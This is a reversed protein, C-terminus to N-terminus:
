TAPGNATDQVPYLRAVLEKGAFGSAVVDVHITVPADEFSTQTVTAAGIAIDREPAGASFLVPYVPPLGALTAPDIEGIVGDTLYFVGALPQGRHRDHLASFTKGVHTADGDFALEHFDRTPLLRADALYNRTEFNETLSARWGTSGDALARTLAAGRTDKAGEDRATMSRSNDAVIAILNAGPKAWQDSWMPELLCILLLAAGALKLVACTLRTGIRAASRAYSLGVLICFIGFGMAAPLLWEQSAFYIGALATENM